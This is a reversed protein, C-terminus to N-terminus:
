QKDNTGLTIPQAPNTANNNFYKPPPAPFETTIVDVIEAQQQRNHPASFIFRSIVLALVAGVFVMVAILAIDKQKM